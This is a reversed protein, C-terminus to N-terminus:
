GRSQSQAAIAEALRREAEPLDALAMFGHRITRTHNKAGARRELEFILDGGGGARSRRELVMNEALRYARMKWSFLTPELLLASSNTLLYLSRKLRRSRRWPFTLFYLVTAWVPLSFLLAPLLMPAALDVEQLCDPFGLAGHTWYCAFVLGPFASLFMLLSEANWLQPQPRTAWRLTEGAALAKEVEERERPTTDNVFDSVHPM